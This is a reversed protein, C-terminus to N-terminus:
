EHNAETDPGFRETALRTFLERARRLRSAVTGTPLDALEAIEIMTLSELEFLVFVVRLDEPMEDILSQLAARAEGLEAKQEPDASGDLESGVREENATERRRSASRRSHSAAFACARFLYQRPRELKDIQPLLRLFLEQVVDDVDAAPVGFRRTCRWVFDYHERIFQQLDTSVREGTGVSSSAPGVRALLPGLSVVREVFQM